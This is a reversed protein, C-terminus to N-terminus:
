KKVDAYDVQGEATQLVPDLEEQFPTYNPNFAMVNESMGSAKLIARREVVQRTARLLTFHEPLTDSSVWNENEDQFYYTQTYPDFYVNAEPHYVVKSDWWEDNINSAKWEAKRQMNYQSMGQSNSSSATKGSFWSNTGCGSLTLCAVAAVGIMTKTLHSM